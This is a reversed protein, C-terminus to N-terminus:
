LPGRMQPRERIRLARQVWPFALGQLHVSWREPVDQRLWPRARRHEPLRRRVPSTRTKAQARVRVNSPSVAQKAWSSRLVHLHADQEGQSTKEARGQPELLWPRVSRAGCAPGEHALVVSPDSTSASAGTPRATSAQRRPRLWRQESPTSPPASRCPRDAQLTSWTSAAPVANVWRGRAARPHGQVRLLAPCSEQALDAAAARHLRAHDATM